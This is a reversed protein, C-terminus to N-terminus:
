RTVIKARVGLMGVLGLVMFDLMWGVQEMVFAAPFVVIEVAHTGFVEGYGLEICKKLEIMLLTFVLRTLSTFLNIDSLPNPAHLTSTSLTDPKSLSIPIRMNLSINPPKKIIEIM